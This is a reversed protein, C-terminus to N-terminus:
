WRRQDTAPSKPTPRQTVILQSLDSPSTPQFFKDSLCSDAVQNTISALQLSKILGFSDFAEPPVLGLVADGIRQNTPSCPLTASLKNAVTPILAHRINDLHLGRSDIDCQGNNPTCGQKMQETWFPDFCLSESNSLVPMTGLVSDTYYEMERRIRNLRVSHEVSLGEGFVLLHLCRHRAEIHSALVSATLTSFDCDIMQENLVNAHHAICRTLPESLLIEELIPLVRLWSKRRHTVGLNQIEQRHAALRNSWFEHRYKSQLWYQQQSTRPPAIRHKVVAPSYRAFVAALQALEIAHM